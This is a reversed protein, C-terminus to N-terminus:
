EIPPRFIMRFPVSSVATGYPTEVYVLGVFVQATTTAEVEGSSVIIYPISVPGIRVNTAVDLNEGLITIVTGEQGSIPSFSTISPVFPICRGGLTVLLLVESNPASLRLTSEFEGLSTPEFTLPIIISGNGPVTVPLPSPLQALFPGTPTISLGDIVVSQNSTNRVTLQIPDSSTDIITQPFQVERQSQLVFLYELFRQVGQRVGQLLIIGRTRPFNEVPPIHFHGTPLLPRIQSRVRSTRYFIENSLFNGGSGRQLPRNPFPSENVLKTYGDPSNADPLDRFSGASTGGTYNALRYSQNMVFPLQDTPSEPDPLRRTLLDSTIVFEYPLTSEFYEDGTIGLDGSSKVINNNDPFNSARRKSAFRDVDYFYRGQSCTMIMVKSHISSTIVKEILGQDFDSFRVPFVVTRISVPSSVTGLDDKKNFELAVLGSPNSIDPKSPLGFPDYGTIIVKRASTDAFLITADIGNSTELGRSQWEFRNITQQSPREGSPQRRFYARLAAIAQLRAYYLLRDDKATNQVYNWGLDWLRTGEEKLLANTPGLEILKGYFVEAFERLDEGGIASTFISQQEKFVRLYEEFTEENQVVLEVSSRMLAVPVASNDPECRLSASLMIHKDFVGKGPPVLKRPSSSTADAELINPKIKLNPIAFLEHVKPRENVVLSANSNLQALMGTFFETPQASSRGPFHTGLPSGPTAATPNDVFGKLLVQRVSFDLTLPFPTNNPADITVALVYERQDEFPEVREVGFLNQYTEFNPAAQPDGEDDIYALVPTVKIASPNPNVELPLGGTRIRPQQGQALWRIIDFGLVAGPWFTFLQGEEVVRVSTVAARILNEGSQIAFANGEPLSTPDLLELPLELYFEVDYGLERVDQMPGIPNGNSDVPQAMAKLIATDAINMVLTPPVGQPPPVSTIIINMLNPSPLANICMSSNFGPQIVTEGGGPSFRVLEINFSWPVCCEGVSRAFYFAQSGGFGDSFLVQGNEEALQFLGGCPLPESFPLISFFRVSHTFNPEFSLRRGDASITFDIGLILNFVFLLRLSGDPRVLASLFSIFIFVQIEFIVGWVITGIANPFQQPFENYIGYQWIDIYIGVILIVRIHITVEVRAAFLIGSARVPFLKGVQALINSELESGGGDFLPFLYVENIIPLIIYIDAIVIEFNIWIFNQNNLLNGNLDYVVSDDEEPGLFLQDPVPILDMKFNGPIPEEPPRAVGVLLPDEPDPIPDSPRLESTTAISLTYDAIPDNNKDLISIHIETDNKKEDSLSVLGVLSRDDSKQLHAKAGDGFDFTCGDLNRGLVVVMSPKDSTLAPSHAIPVPIEAPLITFMQKSSEPILDEKSGSRRSTLVQIAIREKPELKPEATAKVTFTLSEIGSEDAFSPVSDKIELTVRSPGRLAVLGEEYALLLNRGRLTVQCETEEAITLPSVGVVEARDTEEMTVYTFGGELTFQSGDPNVVTVPVSGPTQTGPVKAVVSTSNEYNTKESITSGFYVVAGDEFDTGTITVEIEGALAGGIPSVKNIQITSM